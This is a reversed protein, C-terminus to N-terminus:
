FFNVYNRLLIDFAVACNFAKKLVFSVKNYRHWWAPVKRWILGGSVKQEKKFSDGNKMVYVTWIGIVRGKELVSEGGRGRGGKETWLVACASWAYLSDHWINYMAIYVKLKASDRWHTLSLFHNRKAVSPPTQLPSPSLVPAFSFWSQFPFVGIAPKIRPHANQKM